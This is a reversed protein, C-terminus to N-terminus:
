DIQILKFQDQDSPVEDRCSSYSKLAAKDRALEVSHKAGDAGTMEVRWHNEAITNMQTAHFANIATAGTHHRFYYYAAQLVGDQNSRGRLKDIVVEGNRYREVVSIADDPTVRGYVIGHPLCVVNAAFRHGGLHSTQWVDWGPQAALANYVPVGIRACCRDRAAHTCVLIIPESVKNGDYRADGSVVAPLDLRMVDAYANLNFRYLRLNPERSVALYFTPTAQTSGTRRIMQLRSRPITKLATTLRNKVPQSLRSGEFADFEWSEAYELLLWVDCRPATGFLQEGAQASFDSCYVGSTSM